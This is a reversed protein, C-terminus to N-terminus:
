PGIFSLAFLYINIQGHVVPITSKAMLSSLVDASTNIQMM